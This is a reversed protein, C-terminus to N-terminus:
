VSRSYLFNCCGILIQALYCHSHSGLQSKCLKQIALLLGHQLNCPYGNFSRITLTLHAWNVQGQLQLENVAGTLQTVRGCHIKTQTNQQLDQKMFKTCLAYTILFPIYSTRDLPLMVHESELGSNKRHVAIFLYFVEFIISMGGNSSYSAGPDLLCFISTYLCLQKKVTVMRVILRNCYNNFRYYSLKTYFCCHRIKSHQIQNTKFM